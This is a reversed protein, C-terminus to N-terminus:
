AQAPTEGILGGMVTAEARRLLEAATGSACDLRDAVEAVSGTRPEEYYGCEVAATVAEYQRETLDGGGAFHRAHYEGISLVDVGVAEPVEDLTQHIAEAPAVMTLRITGDARFEVPGVVVLGRQRAADILQDDMESPENYVYLYFTENPRASIEYDIIGDAAELAAEYPEIPWGVIHFLSTWYGDDLLNMELQRSVEYGDTEIVFEHMPHREGPPQTLALSVYKMARSIAIQM